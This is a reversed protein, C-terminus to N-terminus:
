AEEFIQYQDNELLIESGGSSDVFKEVPQQVFFGYLTMREQVTKKYLRM